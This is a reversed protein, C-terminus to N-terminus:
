RESPSFLEGLRLGGERSRGEPACRTLITVPGRSRAHVKDQVLHKLRQYYTPGIFIMHKLKKGTMGNYLYEECNRQYGLSELIDKMAEIDYDEFPTGDMNMGKLAGIKSLLCEWLQGITMRSPIANPNMIIDPRIGHKTFPMDINRFNVGITGKQGHKSNGCWVPIGKRRVYIVGNGLVSCCHVKGEYDVYRDLAVTKNVLPNNQKTIITMRWADHTSIIVEGKRKGHKIVSETGAKYKLAINTSHGAHLCLRQFDNALKISSTDYRQTTINKMTHGDGLVMGDILWNAEQMTLSWVFNPLYKYVGKVAFTRFYAVIRKEPICWKNYEGHGDLHEHIKINMVKCAAGLATKVRKKHAAFEIAWYESHMSGEAIWIGLMTLFSKMDLELDPEDIGGPVIFQRKEDIHVNDPNIQYYKTVNKQYYRRKGNIKEAKEIKYKKPLTRTCSVWMRHNPTVRLNVQNSDVEYIKGKYDYSQIHLPCEYMLTDGNVLSAVEHHMRLKNIPIWGVSTLVDHDPTYCCFKDGIIPERESRVLAKRTEYGDQNKIDTYVRDIVGDAHSKYQESSCKFIKGSNTTDNIPTVKGFIIDGNTIVTEEQIVGNEDLKSYDGNKLGITKDPPPRMFKDNGSTEQNKTISTTYKKLSM